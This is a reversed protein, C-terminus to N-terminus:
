RNSPTPICCVSEAGSQGGTRAQVIDHFREGARCTAEVDARPAQVVRGGAAACDHRTCEHDHLVSVGAMHAKCATSYTRHDCGCVPRYELTCFEPRANCVGASGPVECGQGGM